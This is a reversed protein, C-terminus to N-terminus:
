EQETRVDGSTEFAGQSASGAQGPEQETEPCLM